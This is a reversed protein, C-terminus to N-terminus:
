NTGKCKGKKQSLRSTSLVRPFCLIKKSKREEEEEMREIERKMCCGGGNRISCIYIAEKSVFGHGQFLLNFCYPFSNFLVVDCMTICVYICAIIGLEM